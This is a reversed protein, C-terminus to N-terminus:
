PKKQTSRIQYVGQSTAVVTGDATKLEGELIFEGKGHEDADAEIRKIEEESLNIEISVDGKAPRKFQLDFSKVVPFYRQIDFSALFILGGPFEALTFLAGAYVTGIHNGNGEFPLLCKAHGRRMALVELGSRAVFPIAAVMPNTKQTM